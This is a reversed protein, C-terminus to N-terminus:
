KWIKLFFSGPTIILCILYGGEVPNLFSLGLLNKKREPSPGLQQKTGEDTAEFLKSKMGRPGRPWIERDRHRAYPAAIKKKMGLPKEDRKEDTYARELLLYDM